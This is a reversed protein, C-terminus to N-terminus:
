RLRSSDARRTSTESELALNKDKQSLPALPLDDPLSRLADHPKACRAIPFENNGVRTFPTLDQRKGEDLFVQDAARAFPLVQGREAKALAILERVNRAPLSPHVVIVLPGRAGLMVPTYDVLPDFRIPYLSPNIAWSPTILTFTYGDPAARVGAEFGITSGAGARNEVIVQQGVSEGLKQGVVRAILNTGGGPASGM